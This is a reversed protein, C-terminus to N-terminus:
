DSANPGATETTAKLPGTVSTNIPQQQRQGEQQSAWTVVPLLHRSDKAVMEALATEIDKILQDSM